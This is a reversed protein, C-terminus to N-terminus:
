SALSPIPILNLGCGTDDCIFKSEAYNPAVSDDILELVRAPGVAALFDDVGKVEELIERPWVFWRVEAGRKRLEQTFQARASRVSGKKELDADFVIIM